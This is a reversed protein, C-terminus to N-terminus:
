KRVRGLKDVTIMQTKGSKAVSITSSLGFGSGIGRPDFTIAGSPVTTTVTVGYTNHLDLVSGVTDKSGGAPVRRPTATVLVKDGVFEVQASKRNTQTAVARAKAIMNIVTTRASRVNNTAIANMAKPYGILAVLSVVVIAMLAEILSFGKRHGV